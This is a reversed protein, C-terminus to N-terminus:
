NRGNWCARSSENKGAAAFEGADERLEPPIYALGLKEFIEEETHLAVLLKPDRTEV